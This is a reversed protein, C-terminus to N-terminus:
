LRLNYSVSINESELSMGSESDINSDFVDSGKFDPSSEHFKKASVASEPEFFSTTQRHKSM